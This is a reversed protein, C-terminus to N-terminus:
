KKQFLSKHSHTINFRMGKLFHEMPAYIEDRLLPYYQYFASIPKKPLRNIYVKEAIWKFIKSLM